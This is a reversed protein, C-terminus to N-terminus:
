SDDKSSRGNNKRWVAQRAANSKHKRPRGRKTVPTVNNGAKTGRGQALCWGCFETFGMHYARCEPCRHRKAETMTEWIGGKTGEGGESCWGPRLRRTDLGHVLQLAQVLWPAEGWVSSVQALASAKRCHAKGVCM